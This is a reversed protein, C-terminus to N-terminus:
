RTVPFDAPLLSACGFTGQFRVLRRFLHPATSPLLLVVVYGGATRLNLPPPGLVRETTRSTAIHRAGVAVSSSVHSSSAIRGHLTRGSHDAVVSPYIYLGDDGYIRGRRGHARRRTGGWGGARAPLPPHAAPARCCVSSVAVDTPQQAPPKREQMLSFIPPCLASHEEFAVIARRIKSKPPLLLPCHSERPILRHDHRPARLRGGGGGGECGECGKKCMLMAGSINTASQWLVVVAGLGCGLGSSAVSDEQTAQRASRIWRHIIFTPNRQCLLLCWAKWLVANQRLCSSAAPGHTYFVFREESTPFV